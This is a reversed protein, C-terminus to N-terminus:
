TAGTPGSVYEEAEGDTAVTSALPLTVCTATPVATNVVVSLPLPKDAESVRVTVSVATDAVKFM